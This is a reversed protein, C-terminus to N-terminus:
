LSARPFTLQRRPRTPRTSHRALAQRPTDYSHPRPTSPTTYHPRTAPHPTLTHTEDPIDRLTPLSLSPSPSLSRYLPFVFSLVLSLPPFSLDPAPSIKIRWQLHQFQHLDIFIRFKDSKYLNINKKRITIKSFRPRDPIRAIPAM